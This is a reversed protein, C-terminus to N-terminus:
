PIERCVESIESCVFHQLVGNPPGQEYSFMQLDIITLNENIAVMSSVCIIWNQIKTARINYSIAESKLYKQISVANM